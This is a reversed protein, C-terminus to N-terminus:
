GFGQATDKIAPNSAEGIKDPSGQQSLLPFDDYGHFGCGPIPLNGFYYWSQGLAGPYTQMTTIHLIYYGFVAYGVQL